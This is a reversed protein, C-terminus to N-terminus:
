VTISLATGDPLMGTYQCDPFACRNGFDNFIKKRISQPTNDGPESDEIM